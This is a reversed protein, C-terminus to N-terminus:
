LKMDFDRDFRKTFANVDEKSVIVNNEILCTLIQPSSTWGQKRHDIMQFADILNFDPCEALQQKAEELQRVCQLMQYFLQVLNRQNENSLVQFNNRNRPDINQNSFDIGRM